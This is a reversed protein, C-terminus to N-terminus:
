EQPKRNEPDLIVDKPDYQFVSQPNNILDYRFKPLKDVKILGQVVSNLLPEHPYARMIFPVRLLKLTAREPTM